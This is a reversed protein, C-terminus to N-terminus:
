KRVDLARLMQYFSQSDSLQYRNIIEQSNGIPLFLNAADSGWKEVFRDFYKKNRNKTTEPDEGSQWTSKGQFHLLYSTSVYKTEFGLLSARIRYDVDEGGGPGFSEDFLGVVYFVNKPLRFAYFSIHLREYYEFSMKEHENAVFELNDIYYNDEISLSPPILANNQDDLYTYTQNCSPLCIIDDRKELPDRWNKTFIVDNSLLILDLNERDAIKLLRNVNSAFSKPTENKILLGDIDEYWCNDNDILVFRDGPHLITNSKFSEIALRTYNISNASSIMGFLTPMKEM